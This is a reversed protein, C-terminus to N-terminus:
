ADPRVAEADAFLEAYRQQIKPAAFRAFQRVAQKRAAEQRQELFAALRGMALFTEAPPPAEAQMQCAFDLLYQQHVEFDQFDGLIDQLRKLARILPRVAAPRYLRQFFELLYRLKKCTIRLRHLSEAEPQASGRVAEGQRLVKRYVRWIRESAVALLPRGAEPSPPVEPSPTELFARWDQLLTRYRPAELVEVLRAHERAKRRPLYARLPALAARVPPTLAQEYADLRLLYVDLDRPPGTARGLWAFDPRFRQRVPAPFVQKLQGLLARTRRVAIRFDHLFETDLNARLGPENREMTELLVLLMRRVAEDARLAPDLDVDIRAADEDPTRGLAALAALLPHRRHPPLALDDRLFRCLAQRAEDYGRVPTIRLRADLTAERASGPDTATADTELHLRATTKEEDDLLRFVRARSRVEAVPLLARHKLVAALADRCAGPPLDRAFRPAAQQPLSFRLAQDDLREWRLLTRRGTTEEFLVDGARYLLGDFSDFYRRTRRVARGARLRFRGRLAALVADLDAGPPVGFSCAGQPIDTPGTKPM